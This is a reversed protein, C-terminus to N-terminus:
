YALSAPHSIELGNVLTEIAIHSIDGANVPAPFDFYYNPSGDPDKHQTAKNLKGTPPNWGHSRLWSVQRRNLRDDDKLFHNSTVEVRMGWVGQCAFQVFRNSNKASVILSQDEELKSLVSTLRELFIDWDRSVAKTSGYRRSVACGNTPKSM